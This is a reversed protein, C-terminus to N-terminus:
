RSVASGPIRESTPSYAGIRVVVHPDANNKHKEITLRKIQRDDDYVIGQLCDQLAKQSSDIDRETKYYLEVEMSVAAPKGFYLAARMKDKAIWGVESEWRKCEDTKTVGRGRYNPRYMANLPPPLPLRLEIM